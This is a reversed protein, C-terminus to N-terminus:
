FLLAVCAEQSDVTDDIAPRRFRGLLISPVHRDPNRLLSRYILMCGIMVKARQVFIDPRTLGNLIIPYRPNPRARVKLQRVTDGVNVDKLKESGFSKKHREEDQEERFDREDEASERPAGDM